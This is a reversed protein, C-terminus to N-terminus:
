TKRPISSKQSCIRQLCGLCFDFVQQVLVALPPRTTSLPMQLTLLDITDTAWFAAVVTTVDSTESGDVVVSSCWVIKNCHSINCVLRLQQMERPQQCRLHTEQQCMWGPVLGPGVLGPRAPLVCGGGSAPGMLGPRSPEPPRRPHRTTQESRHASAPWSNLRSRKSSSPHRPRWSWVSTPSRIRLGFMFGPM